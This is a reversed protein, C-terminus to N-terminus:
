GNQSHYLDSWCKKEKLLRIIKFLEDIEENTLLATPEDFIVLKAKLHLVKGIVVMEQQAVSLESIVSQPNVHVNISELIKNTERHMTKYDVFGLKTKPLQGMYFNEAVTLDKALNIDQYVAGLGNKEAKLPSKLDVSKGEILIEGASRQHVGMLIKIMTSKGAGNEGVIAHVEGKRVDFSVDELAKVGPFSKSINKMEVVKKM